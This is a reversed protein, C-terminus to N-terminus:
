LQGHLLWIATLFIGQQFRYQWFIEAHWQSAELIVNKVKHYCWFPKWINELLISIYWQSDVKFLMISNDEPQSFGFIAVHSLNSVNARRHM